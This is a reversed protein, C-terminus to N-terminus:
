LGGGKVHHRRVNNQVLLTPFTIEHYNLVEVALIRSLFRMQVALLANKLVSVERQDQM